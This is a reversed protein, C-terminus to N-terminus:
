PKRNLNLTFLIVYPKRVIAVFFDRLLFGPEVASELAIGGGASHGVLVFPRGRAFWSAHDM